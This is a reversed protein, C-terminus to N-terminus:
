RATRMVTSAPPRKCWRKVMVQIRPVLSNTETARIRCTSEKPAVGGRYNASMTGQPTRVKRSRSFWAAVTWGAQPIKMMGTRKEVTLM